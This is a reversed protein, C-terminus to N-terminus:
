RRRKVLVYIAAISGALLLVGLAIAWPSLGTSQRAEAEDVAAAPTQSAVPAATEGYSFRISDSVPHGDVSVVRYAVEYEGAPLDTPWSISLQDGTPTVKQHAVNNGKADNISVTDLDPILADEFIFTVSTPATALVAGNTPSSSILETHAQAASANIALISFLALMVASLARTTVTPQHKNPHM